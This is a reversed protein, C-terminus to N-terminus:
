IHILSLDDAALFFIGFTFDDVIGMLTEITTDPSRWQASYWPTIAVQKNLQSNAEIEKRFLQEFKSVVGKKKTENSSAIFCHHIFTM